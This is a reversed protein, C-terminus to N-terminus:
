SSSLRYAQGNIGRDKRGVSEEAVFNRFDSRGEDGWSM